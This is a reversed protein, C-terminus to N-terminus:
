PQKCIFVRNTIDSLKDNVSHYYIKNAIIDAGRVLRVKDSACYKVDLSVLNPFIPPYFKDYKHNFTGDKFESLLGERLEYLGNTATTHEDPFFYINEVEEPKILQKKILDLFHRKIGIKYVYDLYRQKSKKNTFIDDLVKDQKVVVGGKQVSNLAKFLKNKDRNEVICAKLETPYKKSLVKEVALYKRSINEKESKSFLVLWGFVFHKNHKKDFVGSEDSYIYLNM